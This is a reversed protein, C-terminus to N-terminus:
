CFSCCPFSLLCSYGVIHWLVYGQVCVCFFILCYRVVGDTHSLRDEILQDPNEVAVSKLHLQLPRTEVHSTSSVSHKAYLHNLGQSCPQLSVKIILPHLQSARRSLYLRHPCWFRNLLLVDTVNFKCILCGIQVSQWSHLLRQTQTERSLLAANHEGFATPINWEFRSM